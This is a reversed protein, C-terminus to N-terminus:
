YNIHPCKAAIVQKVRDPMATVLKECVNRIEDDHLWVNIINSILWGNISCNIKGKVTGWFKEVTDLNLPTLLGM